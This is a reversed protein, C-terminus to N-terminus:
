GGGAIGVKNRAGRGGEEVHVSELAVSEWVGSVEDVVEVAVWGNKSHGSCM